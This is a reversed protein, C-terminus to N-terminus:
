VAKLIGTRKKTTPRRIFSYKLSKQHLKKYKQSIMKASHTVLAPRLLLGGEHPLMGRFKAEVDKLMQDLHRLKTSDTCSYSLSEVVKLTLSFKNDHKKPLFLVSYNYLTLMFYMYKYNFWLVWRMDPFTIQLQKKKKVWALLLLALQLTVIPYLLSYLQTLLLINMRLTTRQYAWGVGTQFNKLYQLFTNALCQPMNEDNTFELTHQKGPTTKVSNVKRVM